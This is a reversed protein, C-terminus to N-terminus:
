KKKFLQVILNLDSAVCICVILSEFQSSMPAVTPFGWTMILTYLIFTVM